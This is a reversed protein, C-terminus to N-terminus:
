GGTVTISVAPRALESADVFLGARRATAAALNVVTGAAAAEPGPSPQRRFSGSSATPRRAPRSRARARRRFRRGCWSRRTRRGGRCRRASRRGRGGCAWSGSCTGWSPSGQGARPRSPWSSSRTPTPRPPRRARIRRFRCPSRAISGSRWRSATTCRMSSRTSCSPRRPAPARMRGTTTMDGGPGACAGARGPDRRWRSSWCRAGGSGRRRVRQRAAVHRERRQAPLGPARRPGAGPAALAQAAGVGTGRVRARRPDDRVPDAGSPVRVALTRGSPCVRRRVPVVHRRHEAGSAQESFGLVQGRAHDDDLFELVFGRAEHLTIPYLEGLARYNAVIAERGVHTSGPSGFRADPAFLEGLADFEHDDILFAYRALLEAIEARAELRAIRREVSEEAM